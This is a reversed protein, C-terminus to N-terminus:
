TYVHLKGAMEGMQTSVEVEVADDMVGDEVRGMGGSGGRSRLPRQRGQSCEQSM